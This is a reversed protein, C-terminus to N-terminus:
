DLDVIGLRDLTARTETRIYDIEAPALFARFSGVLGLGPAIVNERPSPRVPQRCPVGLHRGLRAVTAAFDRNLAEYSVALAGAEAVGRTTWGDVHARWRALVTPHQEMQYRLMGACPAARLFAGASPLLPGERREAQRVYRWLSCMTDAPNRYIYFITFRAALEGLMGDFFAVDHHEKVIRGRLDRHLIGLYKRLDAPSYFDAGMTIDNSIYNRADAGFNLALTNMLFHTGSREHSAVIVPRRDM